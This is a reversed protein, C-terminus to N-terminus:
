RGAVVPLVLRSPHAKSHHVTNEAVVGDAQESNVGGRNLNREFRPFNSSSIELRIRHGPLFVNSTAGLPITLEYVEGKRMWVEKDQGERYRARLISELVNFARGDPYVDLLKATFDTDVADSSVYLVVKPEGTMELERALPESSFVLVDERGEVSRQDLAGAVADPTGTCCMAGGRSPVPNKPDYSYTSAPAPKSHVRSLSGTGSLSNARGSSGLYFNQEKMAPLPWASATQWRNRGMAYYRLRPWDMIRRKAAADDRLWADFWTLYQSRYDFRTDGVEREGIRTNESAEREFACHPHPSMIAFQNDRAQKSASHNRLYNMEFLTMDAGFDFWSNVFLAPVDSVYSKTMYPLKDWYPDAASRAITDEFDTGTLGQAALADKSPLHHWATKLDITPPRRTIDWLGINSNYQDHPLDAPLKPFYKEGYQAFWGIVGVWEPVGGVRAGWYRYHGGLSGVASGSALPILAKLAPPRTGAMFLQIDGEYSCGIAGVNGNSWAQKSLWDVTDYGDEADGGSVVYEGESRHRGRKDQVVVAYGISVFFRLLSTPQKSQPTYRVDKGYPTRILVVPVKGKQAQSPLYLDTALRTGDRMAVFVNRDVKFDDAAAADVTIAGICVAAIFQAIKKM